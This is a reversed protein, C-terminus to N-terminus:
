GNPETSAGRVSGVVWRIAASPVYNLDQQGFRLGVM